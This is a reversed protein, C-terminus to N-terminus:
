ESSFSMLWPFIILYTFAIAVIVGILSLGVWPEAILAIILVGVIIVSLFAIGVREDEKLGGLGKGIM